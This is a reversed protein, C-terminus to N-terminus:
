KGKLGARPPKAKATEEAELQALVVRDEDTMAPEPLVVPLAEAANLKAAEDDTLPRAWDRVM